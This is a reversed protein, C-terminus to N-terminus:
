EVFKLKGFASFDLNSRRHKTSWRSLQWGNGAFRSRTFNGYWVDGIKPQTKERFATYPIFLELTWAGEGKQATAKMGEGNWAVEAQSHRDFITGLSNVVIQYYDGREGKTDLFVEICDDQYVDQDRVTREARMKEVLPETMRFAFTVGRDTWVAQVTTPAQPKPTKADRARVFPQAAADRWAPEDLTGDLKPDGGVKLVPLTPVGSGEHYEKSEKLFLDIAAGFFEVRKRHVTGEGALQRAEALWQGLKLAEERPMTEEHVQKPSINHGAPPTEWRTEEWRTILHNLIKGMPERAPGHMLRVYEDLAADVNFDPNWMVRFWCYLTPHQFAFCGGDLSPPGAGGNIFTGEVDKRHRQCFDKLVHPYQFPLATNNAPWCLYEWLHVPRGTIAAWKAIWEDHVAALTPEKANGAGYMLCLGVVVNDPLELDAPPVTYNSYPLYWVLKEPWRKKVAEAVLRVHHAVVRSARGHATADPDYLPKCFECHCEVGKDPPSIPIVNPAPLGWTGGNPRTFVAKDGDRYYRELDQVYVQATEPNGYCPMREARTGDLRLEFTEPHEEKHVNWATPTHCWTHPMPSSNGQRYRRFGTRYDVGKPVAFITRKPRVPADTYHVPPIVISEHEPVIRGDERPYYWRVGVFRELVDYAGWLTANGGEKPEGEQVPRGCIALGRRQGDDFTKVRFGELPLDAATIGVAETAANPGLLLLVGEAPAESDAVVPLEAGTSQKIHDVLERAALSAAHKRDKVAAAPVVVTAKAQGDEVLPVPRGKPTSHFTV